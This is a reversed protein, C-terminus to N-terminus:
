PRMVEEKFSPAMDNLGFMRSFFIDYAWCIGLREIIWVTTAGSGCWVEEPPNTKVVKSVVQRAYISPSM